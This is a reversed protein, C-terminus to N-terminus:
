ASVMSERVLKVITERKKGKIEVGAEKAFAALEQDTMADLGDDQPDPGVEVDNDDEEDPDSASQKNKLRKFKESGFKKDLEVDSEVIDGQRYTRGEGRQGSVPDPKGAVRHNGKLLKFRIPM